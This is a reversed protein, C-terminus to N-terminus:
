LLFRGQSRRLIPAAQVLPPFRGVLFDRVWSSYPRLPLKARPCRHLCKWLSTEDFIGGRSRRRRIDECRGNRLCQTRWVRSHEVVFRQISALNKEFNRFDPITFHESRGGKRNGEGRVFLIISDRPPLGGFLRHSRSQENNVEAIADADLPVWGGYVDHIRKMLLASPSRVREGLVQGKTMVIEQAVPPLSTMARRANNDVRQCSVWQEVMKRWHAEDM